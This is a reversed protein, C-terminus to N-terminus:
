DRGPKSQRQLKYPVAPVMLCDLMFCVPAGWCSTALGLMMEAPLRCGPHESLMRQYGDRYEQDASRGCRTWACIGQAWTRCDHGRSTTRLERDCSSWRMHPAAHQCVWGDVLGSM